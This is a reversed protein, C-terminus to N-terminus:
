SENMEPGSFVTGKEMYGVQHDLCRDGKRPNEREVASLCLGTPVGPTEHEKEAPKLTLIPVKTDNSPVNQLKENRFQQIPM